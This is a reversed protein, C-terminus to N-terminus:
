KPERRPGLYWDFNMADDWAAGMKALIAERQMPLLFRKQIANDISAAAAKMFGDRNEYREELSPRPDNAAIREARARAFPVFAGNLGSIFGFRELGPSKWNWATFTGLPVSSMAGRWGGLENGDRDVTPVLLPYKRGTTVPESIIGQGVYASGLALQWLPSTTAPVRIGPIAPFHMDAPAVLTSGLVPAMTPPPMIDHLTWARLNELQANMGDALDVNANYPYAAEKGPETFRGPARLAHPVGAFYYLRSDTGLAVPQKGDATTQLLSANRAWYESSSIVYMIKPVTNDRVGRDLMGAHGKGDIDPTPVDAFPYLDVARLNSMVSNGAEGPLAYRHNFSGRGAGATAILMGDYVRRGGSGTNFGRYLFDRLFRGGQSYG